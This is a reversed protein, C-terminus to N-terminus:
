EPLIKLIATNVSNNDFNNYLNNSNKSYPRLEDYISWKKLEMYIPQTDRFRHGVDSKVVQGTKVTYTEGSKPEKWFESYSMDFSCKINSIDLNFGLYYLFGLNLPYIPAKDSNLPAKYKYLFNNNNCEHINYESLCFSMDSVILFKHEPKIIIIEFSATIIVDNILHQMSIALESSSYFGDPITIVLPDQGHLTIVFKNNQLYNSFNYVSAPFNIENVRLSQIYTYNEPCKISFENSLPYYQLDRDNAHITLLKRFLSFSHNNKILPHSNNLQMNLSPIINNM